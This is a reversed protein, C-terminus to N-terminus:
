SRLAVSHTTLSATRADRLHFMMTATEDVGSDTVDRNTEASSPSTPLAPPLYADWELVPDGPASAACVSVDRTLV